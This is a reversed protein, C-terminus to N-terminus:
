RLSRGKRIIISTPNTSSGYKQDEWLIRGGSRIPGCLQVRYAIDTTYKGRGTIM